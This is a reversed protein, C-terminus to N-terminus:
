WRFCKPFERRSAPRNSLRTTWDGRNYRNHTESVNASLSRRIGRPLPMSIARTFRRSLNTCISHPPTLFLRKSRKLSTLFIRRKSYWSKSTNKRNWVKYLKKCYSMQEYSGSYSRMTSRSRRPEQPNFFQYLPWTFRHSLFISWNNLRIM